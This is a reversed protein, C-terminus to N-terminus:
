RSARNLTPLTRVLLADLAQYAAANLHSGDGSTYEDRLYRDKADSRLVEELDIVKIGHEKAYQRVWDNYTRLAELKGSDQKSRTRTVPVTTALVAEAGTAQIKKVWEDILRKQVDLDGPFYASCEKLIVVDAREPAPGFLGKLYSLTPHFVRKPRVLVESLVSSKDFEYVPIMEMVYDPMGARRPFDPLNWASGISAGILVIRYPKVKRSGNDSALAVSSVCLLIGACRWLFRWPSLGHQQNRNM